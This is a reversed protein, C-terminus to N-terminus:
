FLQKTMANKIQEQTNKVYIKTTELSEHGLVDQIVQIPIGNSAMLTACSARLLHPAISSKSTVNSRKALVQLTRRISGRDMPTGQNSIFVNNYVSEKRTFIYKNLLCKTEENLYIVRQKSGKGNIIIENEDLDSLQLNILESIRLASSALLNVICKDRINKSGEIIGRIQSGNLPIKVKHKLKPAELINCPNYVIVNKQVLFDFYRRVSVLKRNVTASSLHSISAQWNLMDDETIKIESKECINLCEKIDRVYSEITNKSKQSAVLKNVYSELNSM